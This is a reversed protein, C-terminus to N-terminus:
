KRQEKLVQIFQNQPILSHLHNSITLTDPFNSTNTTEKHIYGVIVTIDDPHGGLSWLIDNDKAEVAFPGDRRRDLSYERATTVLQKALAHCFEGTSLSSLLPLKKSLIDLIDKDFLNDFMGDTSLIIIDKDQINWSYNQQKDPLDFYQINKINKSYGLQYPLNFRKSQSVTRSFVKYNTLLSTSTDHRLLLVQGDGINQTRLVNHVADFLSLTITSSGEIQQNNTQEWTHKILSTINDPFTNSIDNEMLTTCTNKMLATPYLKPDVIGTWSGVGDAIGLYTSNIMGKPYSSSSSTSLSSSSLISAVPAIFYADESPNDHENAPRARPTAAVGTTLSLSLTSFSSRLTAPYSHSTSLLVTPNISIRSPTLYPRLLPAITSLPVSISSRLITTM